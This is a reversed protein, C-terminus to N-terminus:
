NFESTDLDDVALEPFPNVGDMLHALQPLSPPIIRACRAKQEPNLVATSAKLEIHKTKDLEYYEAWNAATFLRHGQDKVRAYFTGVYPVADSDKEAWSNCIKVGALLPVSIPLWPVEMAYKVLEAAQEAVDEDVLFGVEDHVQFLFELSPIIPCVFKDIAYIALKLLDASSGQVIANLIKGGTMGREDERTFHRVRGSLLKVERIGAKWYEIAYDFFAPLNKYVSFFGARWAAAKEIDFEFTGPIFLKNMRAFKRAGMGYMLGFNLNKAPTRGINLQTSTTRHIDGVFHWMKEFELGEEYIQRMVPDETFHTIVRLEIQSMDAIILKKGKPAIWTARLQKGVKQVRADYEAGKSRSPINQLNPDSSSWRGTKEAGISNFTGCLRCEPHAKARALIGEAYTSRLKEVTRYNLIAIGIPHNLRSLTEQDCALYKRRIEDTLTEPHELDIDILGESLAKNGSETLKPLSRGRGDFMFFPPACNLVDFAIHRLQEPSDINFEQKAIDFVAHKLEEILPGLNDVLKQLADVDIPAGATSMDVTLRRIEHEFEAWYGLGAAEVKKELCDYLRATWIGDAAAYEMFEQDLQKQIEAIRDYAPALITAVAWGHYKAKAEEGFLEQEVKELKEAIAIRGLREEASFVRNGKANLRGPYREERDTTALRRFDTVRVCDNSAFDPWPRVKHFNKLRKNVEAIQNTLVTREAHLPNHKTVEDYTRMKHHLHKLVMEKLGKEEREHLLFQLVMPDRVKARIDRCNLIKREHLLVLDYLVNQVILTVDPRQALNRVIHWVEPTPPFVGTVDRTGLVVLTPVAKRPDTTTSAKEGEPAKAELDLAVRGYKQVSALVEEMTASPM